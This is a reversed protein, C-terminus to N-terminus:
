KRETRSTMGTSKIHWMVINSFFIVGHTGWRGLTGGRPCSEPSLIFIAVLINTDKMQSFVYLTQYLFIKSISKTILILHYIVKKSGEGPGWPASGFLTQFQM